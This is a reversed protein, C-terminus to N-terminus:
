LVGADIQRRRLDQMASRISRSLESEEPFSAYLKRLIRGEDRHGELLVLEKLLQNRRSRPLTYTVFVRYRVGEIFSAIEEESLSPPEASRRPLYALVGQLVEEEATTREEKKLLLSSVRSLLMYVERRAVASIRNERYLTLSPELVLFRELLKQVDDTSETLAILNDLLVAEDARDEMVDGLAAGAELVVQKLLYVDDDPLVAGMTAANEMLESQLLKKVFVDQDLHGAVALMADKYEELPVQVETHGNKLLAVVENLRKEAHVLQKKVRTEEDFTFLTDVAEAARKVPYLPSTPLIGALAIRQEKQWQAVEKRHVADRNLNQETWGFTFERPQIDTVYSEDSQWLQTRQGAILSIIRNGRVVEARRNWVSVELLTSKAISVSGEQVLVTGFDTQIALPEVTFPLLGQVWVTGEQLVLSPEGLDDQPRDALDRVEVITSPALRVVGDDHFVITAESGGATRLQQHGELVFEGTIPEWGGSAGLVYVTGQTPLLMVPSDAVTPSAFFLLPSTRIVVAVAIVATAWKPIFWRSSLVPFSLIRTLVTNWLARQMHPLPDLADKANQLQGVSSVTGRVRMWVDHKQRDTASLLARATIM